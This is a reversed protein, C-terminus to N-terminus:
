LMGILTIQEGYTKQSDKRFSFFLDNDCSTCYSSISINHKKVGQLILLSSAIAKLNLYYNGDKVQYFSQLDPCVDEFQKIRAVPVPYCNVCISPGIFVQVKGISGDLKKIKEIVTQIIGLLLGKYGGHVIGVIKKYPEVFVIPLCDATVVGLFVNKKTTVLGDITEILGRKTGYVIEVDGSHIQKMTIINRLDISLAEACKGLNELIFRGNTKISGLNRTSSACLINSLAFMKEFRITEEM